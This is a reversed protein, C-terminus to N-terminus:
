RITVGLNLGPTNYYGYRECSYQGYAYDYCPYTNWGYGYPYFNRREYGYPQVYYRQRPYNFGRNVPGHYPQVQRDNRMHGQINNHQGFVPATFVMALALVTTKIVNKM